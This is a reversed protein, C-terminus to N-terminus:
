AAKVVAIFRGVQGSLNAAEDSLASAADRVKVAEEGAEAVAGTVAGVTQSVTFTGTAAEQVNRAIERTAAGQQEVASAISAAIESFQGIIGGIDRIAAVTDNTAGQMAAIHRSIEGTAHGTRTALSKVETAVVAFGKGAEGARAAEITANLALLNTQGAITSIMSTVADIRRAADSLGTVLTGSRESLGAAHQACAASADVQRSIEAISSSLQEAAGAVAQVNLSAQESAAAAGASQSSAVEAIETMSSAALKMGAASRAVEGVIAGVDAEFRDALRQRELRQAQVADAAARAQQERLSGVELANEKFVVVAGAMAGVEDRRGHGPVLVSLDGRALQVMAGQLRTLSGAIDRNIWWAALLAVSLLVLSFGGLRLVVGRFAAEIDDTWAGAIVVMRWPAFMAVYSLKDQPAKEGPKLALYSILGGGFRDGPVALAARALEASSRGAADRSATPKGERKPDGGHIMVIGDPDQALLYDDASGFRVLHLEDRFRGLAQARELRGAVVERELTDAFGIAMRVVGRLKDARDDMMRTHIMWAGISVAGVLALAAVACILALKTRIRLISLISV